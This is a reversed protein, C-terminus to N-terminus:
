RSVIMLAIIGVETMRVTPVMANVILQLLELVAKLALPIYEASVCFIPEQPKM